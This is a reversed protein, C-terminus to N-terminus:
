NATNSINEPKCYMLAFTFISYMFANAFLFILRKLNVYHWDAETNYLDFFIVPTIILWWLFLGISGYFGFTRFINLISDSKLFEIFYVAISIFTALLGLLQYLKPHSSMFVDFYFMFHGLMIFTFLIGVIKIIYKTQNLQLLSHFYYFVFLISGFFWFLNYWNTMQFGMRRILYVPYFDPYYVLSAGLVEVIFIYILFFIFYKTSSNRYKKLYIIGTLAALFELSYTIYNFNKALFEIM